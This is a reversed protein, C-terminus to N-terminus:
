DLLFFYFPQECQYSEVIDTVEKNLADLYAACDETMDPDQSQQTLFVRRTELCEFNLLCEPNEM